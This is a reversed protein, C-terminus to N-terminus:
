NVEAREYTGEGRKHKKQFLVSRGQWDHSMSPYDVEQTYRKNEKRTCAAKTILLALEYLCRDEFHEQYRTPKDRFSQLWQEMELLGEESREIGVFQSMKDQLEERTPLMHVPKQNIDKKLYSQKLATDSRKAGIHAAAVKAFHLAELLSNSALRNAGHVGTCAVEGIAYLGGVSTEGSYSTEVGGCMFHAGPEVPIYEVAPDIGAQTCSLHIFPFRKAFFPMHTANLFVDEGRSIAQNMVASVIDRAELDQKSYQSM